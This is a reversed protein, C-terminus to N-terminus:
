GRRSPLDTSGFATLEPVAAGNDNENASARENNEIIREIQEVMKMPETSEELVQVDPDGDSIGHHTLLAELMSLMKTNEQEALLNIQLDLHNRRDAIRGQRNQSILIFTSLFIAELSVVLTLFQYPFPDFQLGRPVPPLTNWFVWLGYWLIHVTVFPMSGCFGSITDAIRDARSRDAKAAEELAAIAEINRQTLEEVSTPRHYGGKKKPSNLDVSKM